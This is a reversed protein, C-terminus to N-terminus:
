GESSSLLGALQGALWSSQSQLNALTVELAAYTRELGARRMALRRDWEEIREGLDSVVGRESKLRLTVSGDVSDSAREAVDAVRQALAVAMAQTGEPDAAMAADFKAADFSVNGSRDITIGLTSPSIGGVPDSAAARLRDQLFRVTSDGSFLGGTVVTRGDSTSTTSASRASIEELVAALAGVTDAVLARRAAADAAVTLTVPAPDATTPATVTLAVGPLVGDFTNTQSTVTIPAAATPWLTIQADRAAVLATVASALRAGAPATGNDVYGDATADLYTLVTAEDGAYVAFAGAAGPPGTLQLRYQPTEGGTVRVPVASVGAGAANVAAAVDDVGGAASITVLEDGRVLTLTPPVGLDAAALDVLSVQGAAVQDVRLQLVAPLAGATTTATVASSSSTATTAQWSAAKAAKSAATALAATKTNLAQLAAVLKAADDSKRKLLTQPAAEVQMLSNILSTTDLGSVLGDVALNM